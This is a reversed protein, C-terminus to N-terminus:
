LAQRLIELYVDYVRRIDFVEEAKKRSHLSLARKEEATLALYREMADALAKADKPPVLFGNKGEDVTERCGPIDTTIIPKGMACAEMLSRNLGEPYYSPLVMVIDPNKLVDAVDDTVGWYEIRGEAVDQRIEEETIHTPYSMDVPGLVACRFRGGYGRDLLMRVAEVLIRYGKDELIRGVMLFVSKGSSVVDFGAMGFRQLDVGEGGNLFFLNDPKCFKRGLIVNRNEENLCLVKDAQRMALRYLVLISRHMFRKGQFAYGLGAMMNACPIGLLKAVFTGYVNPKITYHFVFDPREEQYIHYLAFFYRGDDLPNRGCRNIRVPRYEVGEPVEAKMVTNEDQPAVLVVKYGERMLHTFIYSRFNVLGWLTNDCFLIKGKASRMGAHAKNTKRKKM